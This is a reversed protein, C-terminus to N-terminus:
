GSARVRPAPGGHYTGSVVPVSPRTMVVGDLGVLVDTVAHGWWASVAVTTGARSGAGRMRLGPAAWPGTGM